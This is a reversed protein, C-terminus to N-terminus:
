IRKNHRQHIGGSKRAERSTTRRRDLKNVRKSLRQRVLRVPGNPVSETEKEFQEQISKKAM